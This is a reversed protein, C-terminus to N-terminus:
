AFRKHQLPIPDCVESPEFGAASALGAVDEIEAIGSHLYLLHRIRLERIVRNVHVVSMGLADGLMEQTLPMLFSGGTVFGIERCRQFLELLLSATRQPATQLGLRVMHDLLRREERFRLASLGDIIGGCRSPEAEILRMLPALCSIQVDSIATVEVMDLARKERCNGIVDGPLLISLLGRRGNPLLRERCAWGSVILNPSIWESQSDTITTDACYTHFHLKLHLILDREYDSLTAVEALRRALLSTAFAAEVPRIGM